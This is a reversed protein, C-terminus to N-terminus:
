DAELERDKLEFVLLEKKRGKVILSGWSLWEFEPDAEGLQDRTESSILVRVLNTHRHKECSELRSACNVADGIVAYELRQNNGLSGTLVMGSHVGIRLKMPHLSEGKLDMNLEQIKEQIERAARVAQQADHNLGNSLPAGFVALMGDGTFKNVMGGYKDVSDVCISIGRNLWDMLESPSLQESITTFNCADTFLVTVWQERGLFRGDKLLEDKQEWLQEAVAKSSTQGLLRKIEQQHQQSVLGRRLLGASGSLTLAGIPLSIGIWYNTTLQIFIIGTILSAATIGIVVASKRILKPTEAIAMGLGFLLLAFLAENNERMPHISPRGQHLLDSLSLVRLAHIKVGPVQLYKDSNQFYSHPIAYIDKVSEATSGILVINNKIEKKNIKKDLVDSLKWTKFTKRHHFPLMTQYGKAPLSFYGGANRSLWVSDPLSEIHAGLNNKNEAKELLRISLSRIELSQNKVHVLDRRIVRDNDIVLDNFGQQTAPTGPIAPIEEMINRISILQPNIKIAEQLCKNSPPVSINRYLDLGISSAGLRNINNIAECIYDDSIPWGYRAIDEEGIGIVSVKVKQDIDDTKREWQISTVLDYTLLNISEGVPSIVFCGLIFGSIGYPLAKSLWSKIIKNTKIM